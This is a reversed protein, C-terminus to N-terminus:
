DHLMKLQYSNKEKWFAIINQGDEYFHSAVVADVIRTAIEHANALDKPNPFPIEIGRYHWWSNEKKHGDPELGFKEQLEQARAEAFAIMEKSQLELYM